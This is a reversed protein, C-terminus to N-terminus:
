KEFRTYVATPRVAFANGCEVEGGACKGASLAVGSLGARKGKVATRM